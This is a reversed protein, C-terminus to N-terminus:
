HLQPHPRHPPRFLYEYWVYGHVYRYRCEMGNLYRNINCSNESLNKVIQFTWSTNEWGGVCQNYQSWQPYRRSMPALPPPLTSPNNEVHDVKYGLLLSLSMTASLAASSSTLTVDCASLSFHNVGQSWCDACLAACSPVVLCSMKCGAWVQSQWLRPYIDIHYFM